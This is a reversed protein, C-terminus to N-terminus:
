KVPYPYGKALVEALHADHKYIDEFFSLKGDTTAIATGYLIYVPIPRKLNVQVQTDGTMAARIREPTWEPQEALVWAALDFPKEVRVCGHSFDRRARQFAAQSPTDHLYINHSNPFMFKVQGLANKPGPKQRLVAAGRAALGLNKPTPALVTKGDGTVLEYGERAFYAGDKRAKPIVEQRAISVPVNWYPRFVVYKMANEFVATEHKYAKGVVVAMRLKTTLEAGGPGAELARLTFGPINVLVTRDPLGPPLWRWRELTLQIQRLRVSFPTNLAELTGPGVKGDAALGHRGQFAKLADVLGGGYVGKPLAARVGAPLDGTKELREALTDAAPWAEGPKLNKPVSIPVFPLAALARYRPVEARLIRYPAYPPEVAGLAGAPDASRQLAAVFTPLHLKKSEIELEFSVHGPPIRGIRLDSIYRMTTVTLAADFLERDAASGRLRSTWEGWRAGDYDSANLGKEDAKELLAIVARAQPTPVEGAIWGTRWEVAQYFGSVHVRYDSFDPWRLWPHRAAEVIGRLPTAQAPPVAPSGAAPKQAFAPTAVAFALLLAAFTRTVPALRYLIRSTVGGVELERAGAEAEGPRDQGGRHLSFVPSKSPFEPILDAGAQSAPPPSAGFAPIPDGGDSSHLFWM